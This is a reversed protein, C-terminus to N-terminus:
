KPRILTTFLQSAVALCWLSTLWRGHEPCCRADLKRPIEPDSETLRDFLTYRYDLLSCRPHDREDVLPLCEGCGLDAFSHEALREAPSCKPGVKQIVSDIPSVSAGRM